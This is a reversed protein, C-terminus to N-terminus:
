RRRAEPVYFSRLTQGTNVDRKHPERTKSIFLRSNLLLEVLAGYIVLLADEVIISAM